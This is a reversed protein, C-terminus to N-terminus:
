LKEYFKNIYEKCSVSHLSKNKVLEYLEYDKKNKEMQIFQGRPCMMWFDHITFVCALGLSSAIAPLNMSLHNLHGFHVVDPKFEDLTRRFAEDLPPHIYRDKHNAMNVRRVKISSVIDDQEDRITADPLGSLEERTFVM